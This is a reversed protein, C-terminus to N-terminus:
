RRTTSPAAKAATRQVEFEEGLMIKWAQRQQVTLIALAQEGFSPSGAVPPTRALAEPSYKAIVAQLAARQKPGIRLAEAIVPRVLAAPGEWQLDLQVLRRAQPESLTTRLWQTHAEDLEARIRIVAPSSPRGRISEAKTYLEDVAKAAAKIQGPSMNLDAQVDPRTLLFLPLTRTGLRDDPLYYHQQGRALSSSALMALSALLACLRTSGHRM